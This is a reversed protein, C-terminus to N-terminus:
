YEWDNQTLSLNTRELKQWDFSNKSAALGMKLKRGDAHKDMGLYLMFIENEEIVTPESLGGSEWDRAEGPTLIPNNEYKNWNIGDLSFAFNIYSIGKNLSDYRTYFMDFRNDVFIVSPELIGLSESTNKIDPILIPNQHGKEWNIGDDSTALGIQMKANKDMGTYWMYYKNDKCIVAPEFVGDSDWDISEGANIVPNGKYKEWNIGDDSTALGIQMKANKDMGTYWMYYKNDKCIVAPEFVGNYEWNKNEDRNVIPNGTYKEWTHLDSSTAIGISYKYFLNSINKKNIG